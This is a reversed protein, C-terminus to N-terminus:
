KAAGYVGTLLVGRPLVTFGGFGNNSASSPDGGTWSIPTWKVGDTAIWAQSGGNKVAVLYTGNGAIVGDPGVSCEATCQATGLPGFGSDGRWTKGGDTSVDLRTGGPTSDFVTSLLMGDRGFDIHALGRGGIASGSRTWTRGDDSWWVYSTTGTATFVFRPQDGARGVVAVPTGMLFFRGANSQVLPGETWAIGPEADEPTWHVGDASFEVVAATAQDSTAPVVTAVLGTDTGAISMLMGGLQPTGANQWAVGDSSTWVTASYPASTPTAQDPASRSGNDVAIVVLGAPSAAVYYWPGPLATVPTWTQADASVWLSHAPGPSTDTAVYGGRWRLVGGVRNSGPTQGSQVSFGTWNDLAGPTTFSTSNPATATPASSPAATEQVSVTSTPYALTAGPSATVPPGISGRPTVGSLAQGFYVRDGSVWLVGNALLMPQGDAPLNAVDGGQQLLTWQGDGTGVFFKAGYNGTLVIRNGDSVSMLHDLADRSTRSDAFWTTGGDSSHVRGDGAGSSGWQMAPWPPINSSYGTWPLTPNHSAWTLGDHSLWSHYSFRTTVGKDDTNSSSGNPDEVAGVAVFGDLFPTVQVTGAAAMDSPLTARTWTTADASFYISELSPSGMSMGSSTTEAVVGPGGGVLCSGNVDFPVSVTTWTTGDSTRLIGAEQNKTRYMFLLDGGVAATCGAYQYEPTGSAPKWTLGDPSLWLGFDGGTTAYGGRWRVVGGTGSSCCGIWLNQRALGGATATIDHWELGTWEGTGPDARLTWTAGGHPGRTAVLLGAASVAVVLVAALAALARLRWGASRGRRIPRVPELWARTAAEGDYGYAVEDLHRYVSSPPVIEPGSAIRRLRRELDLDEEYSM